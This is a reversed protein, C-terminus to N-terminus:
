YKKDFLHLFFTYFSHIIMFEKAFFSNLRKLVIWYM